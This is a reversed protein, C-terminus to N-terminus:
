DMKKYNKCKIQMWIPDFNLPYLFWGNRVGHRDGQMDKDPKSCSIHSDGPISKKFECEYCNNEM